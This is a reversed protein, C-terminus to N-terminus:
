FRDCCGRQPQRVTPGPLVSSKSRNRRHVWANWVSEAFAARTDAVICQPVNNRPSPRDVVVSVAGSAIAAELHQHGDARSGRLAVFVDGPQVRRSDCCFRSAVIDGTSVFSAAGLTDRLSISRVEMDALDPDDLHLLLPVTGM